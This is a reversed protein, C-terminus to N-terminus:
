RELGAHVPQKGPLNLGENRCRIELFYGIERGLARFICEPRRDPHSLQIKGQVPPKRVRRHAAPQNMGSDYLWTLEKYSITDVVLTNGEYHGISHGCYTSNV